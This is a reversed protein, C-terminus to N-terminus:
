CLPHCVFVNALKKLFSEEQDQEVKTLKSLLLAFNLLQQFLQCQPNRRFPEFCDAQCGCKGEVKRRVKTPFSSDMQTKWKPRFGRSIRRRKVPKPELKPPEDDSLASIDRLSQM